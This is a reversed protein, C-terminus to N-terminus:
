WAVFEFPAVVKKTRIGVRTTKKATNLTNADQELSIQTNEFSLPKGNELNKEVTLQTASL